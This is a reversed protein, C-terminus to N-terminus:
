DNKSAELIARDIQVTMPIGNDKKNKELIEVTKRALTFTRVVRNGKIM